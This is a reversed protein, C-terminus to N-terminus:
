LGQFYKELLTYCTRILGWKVGAKLPNITLLWIVWNSEHGKKQDYSMYILVWHGICPCKLCKCKLVKRITDQPALKTSTQRELWPELCECNMCLHLEWLPLASSLWQAEDRANKVMQSFTHKVGLCMKLRMPRQVECKIM